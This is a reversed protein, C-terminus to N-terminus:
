NCRFENFSSIEKSFQVYQFICIIGEFHRQSDTCVKDPRLGTVDNVQFLIYEALM